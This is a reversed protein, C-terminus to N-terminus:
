LTVNLLKYLYVIKPAMPLVDAYMRLNVLYRTNSVLVSEPIVMVDQSFDVLNFNVISAGYASILRDYYISKNSLVEVDRNTTDIENVSVRYSKLNERISVLNDVCTLWELRYVGPEVDFQQRYDYTEPMNQMEVHYTSFMVPKNEPKAYPNQRVVLNVHEISYDLNRHAYARVTINQPNSGDPFIQTTFTLVNEDAVIVSSLVIGSKVYWMNADTYAILMNSGIPVPGSPLEADSITLSAGNPNTGEYSVVNNNLTIQTATEGANLTTWVEVFELTVKNTDTDFAVSKVHVTADENGTASHAFTIDLEMDVPFMVEATEKREFTQTLVLTKYQVPDAGDNEMDDAAMDVVELGEMYEVAVKHQNELEIQFNVAGTKSMDLVPVSGLGCVSKLPIQLNAKGDSDLLVRSGRGLFYDNKQTTVGKFLNKQTQTRRNVFRVEEILPVKESTIKMNKIFASSDYTVANLDGVNGLAVNATVQEGTDIDQFSIGELELYAPYMNTVGDLMPLQVNLLNNLKTFVGGENQQIKLIKFSM